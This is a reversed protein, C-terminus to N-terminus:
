YLFKTNFNYKKNSLFYNFFDNKIFYINNIFKKIHARLICIVMVMYNFGNSDVIYFKSYLLSKIQM